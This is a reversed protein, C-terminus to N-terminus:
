YLTPIVEPIRWNQPLPETRLRKRLNENQVELRSVMESIKTAFLKRRDRSLKAHMRNRQKRHVHLLLPFPASSSKM